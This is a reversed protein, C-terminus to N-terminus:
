WSRGGEKFAEIKNPMSGTFIQIIEPGDGNAAAEKSRDQGSHGHSIRRRGLIEM